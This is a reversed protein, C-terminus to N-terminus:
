PVIEWRYNRVDDSVMTSRATMSGRLADFLASGAARSAFSSYKARAEALASLGSEASSPGSRASLALESGIAHGLGKLLAIRKM